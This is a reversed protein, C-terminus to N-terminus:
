RRNGTPQVYNHTLCLLRCLPRFKLDGQFDPRTSTEGLGSSAGAVVVKGDINNSM